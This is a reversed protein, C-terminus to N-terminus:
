EPIDIDNTELFGFYGGITQEIDGFGAEADYVDGSAVFEFTGELNLPALRVGAPLMSEIIQKMQNVTIGASQLVGYPLSGVEVECLNNTESLKFSSPDVGFASAMALIISNTDGQALLRAVKQLIIYRYQSDTMAGRAQAYMAGYLDLTKGTTQHIDLTGQVEEIDKRFDSVLEQELTLFKYNNSDPEKRFYDPLQKIYDTIKM